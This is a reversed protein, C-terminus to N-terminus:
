LSVRTLRPIPVRRGLVNGHRRRLAAFNHALFALTVPEPHTALYKAVLVDVQADFHKHSSSHAFCRGPFRRLDGDFAPGIHWLEHAATVLKEHAPQDCFRPVFFRLAYLM